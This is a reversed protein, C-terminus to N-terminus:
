SFPSPITSTKPQLHWPFALCLEQPFAQCQYFQAVSGGQEWLVLGSESWTWGCFMPMLIGFVLHSCTRNSLGLMPVICILSINSGCVSLIVTCTFAHRHKFSFLKQMASLHRSSCFASDTFLKCLLVNHLLSFSGAHWNHACQPRIQWYILLKVETPSLEQTLPLVNRQIQMTFHGQTLGSALHSKM